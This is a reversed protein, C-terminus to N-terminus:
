VSKGPGVDRLTLKKTVSDYKFAPNSLSVNGTTRQMFQQCARTYNEFVYYPGPISVTATVLLVHWLLVGVPFIQM